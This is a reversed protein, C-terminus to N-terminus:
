DFNNRCKTTTTLYDLVQLWTAVRTKLTCKSYTIASEFYNLHTSCILTIEKFVCCCATFARQFCLHCRSKVTRCNQDCALVYVFGWSRSSNYILIVSRSSPCLFFTVCNVNSNTILDFVIIDSVKLDFVTHKVVILDFLLDLFLHGYVFLDLILFFLRCYFCSCFLDLFISGLDYTGLRPDM